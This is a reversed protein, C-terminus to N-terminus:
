TQDEEHSAKVSEILAAGLDKQGALKDVARVLVEIQALARHRVKESREHAERWRDAERVKEKYMPKPILWGLYVFVVAMAVLAGAGLNGWTLGMIVTPDM